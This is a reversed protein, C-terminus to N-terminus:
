AAETPRSGSVPDPTAPALVPSLDEV